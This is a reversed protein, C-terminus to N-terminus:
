PNIPNSILAYTSGTIVAGSHLTITVMLHEIKVIVKGRNKSRKTFYKKGLSCYM